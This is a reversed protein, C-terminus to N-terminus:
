SGVMWGGEGLGEVIRGSVPMRGSACKQGRCLERFVLGRLSQLDFV